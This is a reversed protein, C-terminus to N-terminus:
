FFGNLTLASRFTQLSSGSGKEQGWSTGFDLRFWKWGLSLGSSLSYFTSHPIKMPQPDIQIGLRTTLFFTQRFIILTNRNEVALALRIINRFNRNIEESFWTLKYKSWNFFTAEGCFLWSRDFSYSGALSVQWPKQIFDDAEDEISILTGTTEASYRLSSHSRKKLKHAPELVLGMKLSDKIEATLGFRVYLDKLSARKEDDIFIRNLPWSEETKREVNGKSNNLTLGFALIKGLKRAMALNYTRLFGRQYFNIKYITKGASVSEATVSPRDYYETIAVGVGFSWGKAKFALGAGDFATVKVWINQNSKLVGTNVPGFRFLSARTISGNLYFSFPTLHTLLSPNNFAIAPTDAIITMIEARGLSSAPIFGSINWSKLPAEEEYQGIILQAGCLCPFLVLCFFISVKVRLMKVEELFPKEIRNLSLFM